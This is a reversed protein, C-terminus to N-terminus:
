SLYEFSIRVYEYNNKSKSCSNTMLMFQQIRSNDSDLVFINGFMDFSMSRPKSLQNAASGRGRCGVLCQFGNPGSGVIRSNQRDTIFLYKKADLIIATPYKLTITTISSGSGAVTIGNSQGFPFLQIRHNWCDAVYLDFSTDIFLGNPYNLTNAASDAIGTGAVIKVPDSKENLSKRIVQHASDMSCYIYNSIDVFVDYCKPCTEMISVDSSTNSSWKGIGCISNWTYSFYVDNEETVFVYALDTLNLSINRTLVSNTRSWIIM